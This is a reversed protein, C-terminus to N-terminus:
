SHSTYQGARLSSITWPLFGDSFCLLAPYCPLCGSTIICSTFAAGNSGLGVSAEEWHWALGRVCELVRPESDVQGGRSYRAIMLVPAASRSPMQFHQKTADELLKRAEGKSAM